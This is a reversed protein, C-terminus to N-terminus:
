ARRANRRGHAAIDERRPVKTFGVGQIGPFDKELALSAIYVRWQERDVSPVARFLGAGGRLVQEYARLAEAFNRAIRDTLSEFEVSGAEM